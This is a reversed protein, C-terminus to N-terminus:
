HSCSACVHGVVRSASLEGKSCASWKIYLIKNEIIIHLFQIILTKYVVKGEPLRVKLIEDYYQEITKM